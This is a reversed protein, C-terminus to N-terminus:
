EPKCGLPVIIGTDTELSSGCGACSQLNLIEARRRTELAFFLPLDTRARWGGGALEPLPTLEGAYQFTLGAARLRARNQGVHMGDRLRMATEMGGPGYASALVNLRFHSIYEDHGDDEGRHVIEPAGDPVIAIVGFAIWDIERAPINATDIQWRPRVLASPLGSIAAFAEQLAGELAQQGPEPSLTLWGGTASTNM